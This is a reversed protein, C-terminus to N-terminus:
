FLFSQRLKSFGKKKIGLVSFLIRGCFSSELFILVPLKGGHIEGPPLAKKQFEPPLYMAVCYSRRKKM